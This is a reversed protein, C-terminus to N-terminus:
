ALPEEGGGTVLVVRRRRSILFMAAGAALVGAGIGGILGARSGTIPLGGGAGGDGPGSAAPAGVHVSFEATNDDPNADKIDSASLAKVGKPLQPTRPASVTAGATGLAFGSLTGGDLVVPGPADAAVTVPFYLGVVSYIDDDENTDQDMPVLTIDTYDCTVTRNDSTYSCGPEVEAFTVYKPLKVTVKVGQATADGINGVAGLVLSTGGPPVPKRTPEGTDTVQYVDEAVAVLDVGRPPVEVSVTASNNDANTDNGSVTAVTFSGAAGTQGKVATLAVPLKWEESDGAPFDLVSCTVTAGDAACGDTPAGITVKGRDLKSFDYEILFPGSADPGNNLVITTLNAATDTTVTTASVSVQLDAGGDMAYAPGGTLMLAASAALALAGVGARSVARRARVNM